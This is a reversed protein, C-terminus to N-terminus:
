GGGTKDRFKEIKEETGGTKRGGERRETSFVFGGRGKLTEKNVAWRRHNYEGKKKTGGGRGQRGEV